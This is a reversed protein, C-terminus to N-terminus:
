EESKESVADKAAPLVAKINKLNDKFIDLIIKLSTVADDNACIPFDVSTPDINTDCIAVVAAKVIKAERLPLIDKKADAVFVADPLKILNRIGVLQEQLKTMKRQLQLREKKTFKEWAGEAQQAELEQLHKLRKNITKFNTLTGGLWRETVYPMNLAQATEKILAKAAPKTGVFLILGGKSIVGSFFDLTEALQKLTKELDFFHVSHKSGFIYPEMKPHWRSTRHGLHAGADYLEQLSPLKFVAQDQTSLHNNM